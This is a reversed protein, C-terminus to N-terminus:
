PKGQPLCQRAPVLSDALAHLEDETVQANIALTAFTGAPTELLYGTRSEAPPDKITARASQLLIGALWKEM